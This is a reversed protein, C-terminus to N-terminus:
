LRSAAILGTHQRGAAIENKPYSIYATFLQKAAAAIMFLPLLVMYSVITVFTAIIIKPMHLLGNLTNYTIQIPQM